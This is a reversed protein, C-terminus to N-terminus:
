VDRFTQAMPLNGVNITLKVIWENDLHAENALTNSGISTVAEPSTM